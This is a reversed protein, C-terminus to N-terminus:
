GMKKEEKQQRKLAEQAARLRVNVISAQILDDASSQHRRSYDQAARWRDMAGAYDLDAMRAEGEARLARLALGQAGDVQALRQWALADEPHVSVWAQLDSSAAKFQAAQGTQLQAEARLLLVARGAFSVRAPDQAGDGAAASSATGTGPASDADSIELSGDAAPHAAAANSAAPLLQLARAPQGARLALEAQLLQVQRAAKPHDATLGALQGALTQAKPLDHLGAQALAAAYLAAARKEPPQKAFEASEPMRAWGRLVDVGPRALVRARAAMLLAEWDPAPKPRGQLSRQREQMDAIREATLPHDRLFPWDGNDNIREAAQLKEFMSVFGWPDFGAQVFVGYGIRDAEREMNRSFHLQRSVATAQGGAVVAAGVQPNHIGALLGAAMAALLLPQERSQRAIMRAIHRQMIHSSEHALVAALEDHSEVTGIMGLNVGIYGGPMAFSNIERDRVLLLRWAYRQALESTLNGRVEAAALLRRWIGNVYVSLIPDDMYTPDSYLDRVILDGLKREELPTMDGADGLAPLADARGAPAPTQTQAHAAALPLAALLCPLLLGTAARRWAGSFLTM